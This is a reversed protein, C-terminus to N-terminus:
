PHALPILLGLFIGYVIDSFLSGVLGRNTIRIGGASEITRRGLVNFLIWLVIGYVVTDFIVSFKAFPILTFFVPLLLRFAIGAVIGHSIHSAITWSLIPKQMSKWKQNLMSVMVWNVQWEVVAEMGWKKWFPYELLTMLVASVLGAIGAWELDVLIM